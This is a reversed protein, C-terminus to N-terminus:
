QQKNETEKSAMGKSVKKFSIHFCKLKGKSGIQMANHHPHSPDPVM